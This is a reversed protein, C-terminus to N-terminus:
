TRIITLMFPQFILFIKTTTFHEFSYELAQQLPQVPEHELHDFVYGFGNIFGLLREADNNDDECLGIRM